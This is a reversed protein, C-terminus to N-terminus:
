DAADSNKQETKQAQPQTHADHIEREGIHRKDFHALGAEIRHVPCPRQLADYLLEHLIRERLRDQGPSEHRAVHDLDVDRAVTESELLTCALLVTRCSRGGQPMHAGRGESWM